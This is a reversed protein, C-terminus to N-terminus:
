RADQPSWCTTQPPSRTRARCPCCGERSARRRRAPICTQTATHGRRHPEAARQRLSCSVALTPHISDLHELREVPEVVDEDLTQGGAGVWVSGSWSEMGCGQNRCRIAASTRHQNHPRPPTQCPVAVVLHLRLRRCTRLAAQTSVNREVRIHPQLALTSPTADSPPM